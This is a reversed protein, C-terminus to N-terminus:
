RGGAGGNETGTAKTLSTVLKFKEPDNVFISAYKPNILNTPNRYCFHAFGEQDNPLTDVPVPSYNSQSNGKHFLLDDIRQSVTAEQNETMVKDNRLGNSNIEAENCTGYMTPPADYEPVQLVGMPNNVDSERCKLKGNPQGQYMYREPMGAMGMTGLELNWDYRNGNPLTFGPYNQVSMTNRDSMGNPYNGVKQISSAGDPPPIINPSTDSLKMIRTDYKSYNGKIDNMLILTAIQSGEGTTYKVDTIINTELVKGQKSSLAIIDGQKFNLANNVYLLNNLNGPTFTVAKVLYVGTDYANQINKDVTLPEFGSVSTKSINSNILICLSLVLVTVAFYLSQKKYFTLAFGVIIAILSILNLIKLYNETGPGNVNFNDMNILDPLYDLWFQVM